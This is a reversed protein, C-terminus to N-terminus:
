LERYLEADAPRAHAGAQTGQRGDADQLRAMAGAREDGIARWGEAALREAEQRGEVSERAVLHELRPARELNADRAEGRFAGGVILDGCDRFFDCSHEGREVIRLREQNM